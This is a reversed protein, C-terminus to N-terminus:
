PEGPRGISTLWLSSDRPPSESFTVRVEYSYGKSLFESLREARNTRSWTLIYGSLGQSSELWNCTTIDDSGIPIRALLTNGQNLEVEGRFNLLKTATHPVGLVFQYPKDHRVAMTFSLINSTCNALRDSKQIPIHRIRYNIWLAVLTAVLLPALWMFVVKSVRLKAVRTRIGCLFDSRGVEFEEDV